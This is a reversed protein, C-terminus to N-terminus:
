ATEENIIEELNDYMFKVFVAFEERYYTHHNGYQSIQPPMFYYGFPMNSRVDIDGLKAKLELAKKQKDTM